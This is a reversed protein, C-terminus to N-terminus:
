KYAKWSSTTSYMTNPWTVKQLALSYAIQRNDNVNKRILQEESASITGTFSSKRWCCSFSRSWQPSSCNVPVIICHCHLLSLVVVLSRQQVGSCHFGGCRLEKDPSKVEDRHRRRCKMPVCDKGAGRVSLLRQISRADATVRQRRCTATSAVCGHISLLLVSCGTIPLLQSSYM